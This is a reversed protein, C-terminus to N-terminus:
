GFSTLPTVIVKSVNSAVSFTSAVESTTASALPSEFFFLTVALIIPWSKSLRRLSGFNEVLVSWGKHFPITTQLLKPKDVVVNLLIKNNSFYNTTIKSQQLIKAQELLLGVDQLKITDDINLENGITMNAEMSLVSAYFPINSKNKKSLKKFNNEKIWNDQFFFLPLALDNKFISIGNMKKICHIYTTDYNFNEGKDIIYKAGAFSFLKPKSLIKYVWKLDDPNNADLADNLQLFNLYNKNHFATYGILGNFNQMMADNMSQHVSLGSPFM